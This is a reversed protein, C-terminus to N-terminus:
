AEQRKRKTGSGRKRRENYKRRYREHNSLFILFRATIYEGLAPSPTIMFNDWTLPKLSEPVRLRVGKGYRWWGWVKKCNEANCVSREEFLPATCIRCREQIEPCGRYLWANGRLAHSSLLGIDYRWKKSYWEMISQIEHPPIYRSRAIREILTKFRTPHGYGWKQKLYIEGHFTDKLIEKFSMGQMKYGQYCAWETLSIM